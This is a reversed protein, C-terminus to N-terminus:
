ADDEERITALEDRISELDGDYEAGRDFLDAWSPPM